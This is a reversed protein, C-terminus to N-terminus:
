YYCLIIFIEAVLQFM